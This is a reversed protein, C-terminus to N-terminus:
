ISDTVRCQLFDAGGIGRTYIGAMAFKIAGMQTGMTLFGDGQCGNM